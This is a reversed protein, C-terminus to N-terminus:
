IRPVFDYDKLINSLKKYIKKIKSINVSDNSDKLNKFAKEYEVKDVNISYFVSLTQMLEEIEELTPIKITQGGFFKCLNFFNERDLVYILESISSYEPSDTLKYLAFLALSYVDKKTLNDLKDKIVM